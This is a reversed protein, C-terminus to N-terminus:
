HLNIQKYANLENRIDKIYRYILNVTYGITKIANEQELGETMVCYFIRSNDIYLIGCSHFIRANDYEAAFKQAVTVNDPLDAIKKINFITDTLLSIIYESHEPELVTSLYLSSFLNYVSKATVINSLVITENKAHWISIDKSHYDLYELLFRSEKTDIQRLLMNFATNDSEKLAKELVLQLPLEKDRSNYLNGFSDTRDSDKIELMTNFSLEGKEIKRMILIAVPVKNLSAPMYGRKENIAFSAGDRLNVVYISISGNKKETYEELKKRLPDFNVILLSKPELIGSYVRASLLKTDNKLNSTQPNKVKDNLYHNAIVGLLVLIIFSEALVVWKLKINM